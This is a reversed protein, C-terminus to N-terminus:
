NLSIQYKIDYKLKGEDDRLAELFAQDEKSVFFDKNSVLIEAM